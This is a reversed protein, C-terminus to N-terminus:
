KSDAHWHWCRAFCFDGSVQIIFMILSNTNDVQFPDLLFYCCLQRIVMGASLGIPGSKPTQKHIHSMLLGMPLWLVGTDVQKSSGAM